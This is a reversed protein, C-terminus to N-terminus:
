VRSYLFGFVYCVGGKIVKQLEKTDYMYAGLYM